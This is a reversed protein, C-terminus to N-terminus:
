DTCIENNNVVKVVANPIIADSTYTSKTTKQTWNNMNSLIDCNNYPKFNIAKNMNDFIYKEAEKRSIRKFEMIEEVANDFECMSCLDIRLPNGNADVSRIYKDDLTFLKGCRSCIKEM